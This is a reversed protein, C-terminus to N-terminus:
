MFEAQFYSVGGFTQVNNGNYATQSDSISMAYFVDGENAPLWRSIMVNDTENNHYALQSQVGNASVDTGNRTLAMYRSLGQNQWAIYLTFRVRTVGAPVVFTGNVNASDGTDDHDITDFPVHQWAGSNIQGGESSTLCATKIGGGGGGGGGANPNFGQWAENRRAYFQGDDPAEPVGGGGGGGAPAAAWAQSKRVYSGGDNPADTQIASAFWADSKRVYANGDDPADAIGGEGGGGGAAPSSLDWSNPPVPVNLLYVAAVAETDSCAFIIDGFMPSIIPYYGQTQPPIILRQGTATVMITLPKQADGLDVYMSQLVSLGPFGPGKQMFDGVNITYQPEGQATFDLGLPIAAPGEPPILANGVKTPAGLAIIM